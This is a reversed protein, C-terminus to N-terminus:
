EITLIDDPKASPKPLVTWFKVGHAFFVKPENSTEQILYFGDKKIDFRHGKGKVDKCDLTAGKFYWHALQLHWDTEGPVEMCVVCVEHEQPKPELIDDIAIWNFEHTEM